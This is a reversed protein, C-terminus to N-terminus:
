LCGLQLQLLRAGCQLPGHVSSWLCCRDAHTRANAVIQAMEYRTITKDGQFSQDSYGTLIGDKALQMVASYAWHVTPVDQFLDSAPAAM